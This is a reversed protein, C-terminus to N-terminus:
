TMKIILMAIKSQKKNRNLYVIHSNIFLVGADDRCFKAIPFCKIESTLREHQFLNPM